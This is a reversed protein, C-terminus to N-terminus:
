SIRRLNLPWDIEYTEVGEVEALASVSAPIREAVLIGNLRGHSFEDRKGLALLYEAVQTVAEPKAEARKIEIILWDGTGRGRALIDIRRSTMGGDVPFEDQVLDYREAWTTKDWNAIMSHQIDYENVFGDAQYVRKNLALVSHDFRSIAKLTPLVEDRVVVLHGSGKNRREFAFPIRKEVFQQHYKGNFVAHGYDGSGPRFTDIAVSWQVDPTVSFALYVVGRLNPWRAKQLPHNHRIMCVLGANIAVEILHEVKSTLRWNRAVYADEGQRILLGGEVDEASISDSFKRYGM